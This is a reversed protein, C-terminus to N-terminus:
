ASSPRPSSLDDHPTNSRSSEYPEIGAIGAIHQWRDCLSRRVILSYRLHSDQSPKRVREVTLCRWQLRRHSTTQSRSWEYKCGTYPWRRQGNHQSKGPVNMRLSNHRSGSKLFGVGPRDAGPGPMKSQCVACSADSASRIMTSSVWSLMAVCKRIFHVRKTCSSGLEEREM